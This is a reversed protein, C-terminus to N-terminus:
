VITDMGYVARYIAQMRAIEEDTLKSFDGRRRKPFIGKNQHLFILMLNIDKDPMDVIKQLERKAEDYRQLFIFEAPMDEQLTAHIIKILYICQETFDPYKFYGSVLDQNTVTIAGNNDMTYTIRQMLPQSYRELIADYEKIHNLMHASVPIILGGPVLKGHVLIDHILFRHIRGNGDEFPHIFVFGFAVLAARAAPHIDRTRNVVQQLGNMLSPVIDPPPCIYHILQLYTPLIQGVYNQYDRFETAAYRPDVIANQLQVLREKSLLNEDADAGAQVLLAVFKHMRDPTPKEKEIEYSSRTEKNYLYSVARGFIEPPYSEKLQEMKQKIDVELLSKLQNTKRIIPCYDAGGLLNSNIKWRINKTSAGVLYKDPDLLDVYNAAINQNFDIRRSTLFEYLFGIKRSYRGSPTKEVYDKIDEAPIGEMVAKYFDLNLDDYKLSFEFHDLPTNTAPAYKPGYVQEVNGKSTLEISENNGIFSCHTLTYHSLKFYEKLWQNGALQIPM